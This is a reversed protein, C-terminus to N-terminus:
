MDLIDPNNYNGSGPNKPDEGYQNSGRTGETCLLVLLWIAGALPILAVFFYWGSKDTDHLRRVLVAISPILASLAYIVLFAAGLKVSILSLIFMGGYQIIINMLGFYWYESRRARGNFNAFNRWGDLWYNVM